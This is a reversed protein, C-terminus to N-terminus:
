KIQKNKNKKSLRITLQWMHSTWSCYQTHRKRGDLYITHKTLPHIGCTTYTTRTSWLLPHNRFEQYLQPNPFPTLLPTSRLTPHYRNDLPISNHDINSQLNHLGCVSSTNGSPHLTYTHKYNLIKPIIISDTHINFPHSLAQQISRYRATQRKAKGSRLANYHIAHFYIVNIITIITNNNNNNNNTYQHDKNLQYHVVQLHTM